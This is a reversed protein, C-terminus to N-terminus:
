QKYQLGQRSGSSVQGGPDSHRKAGLRGRARFGPEALLPTTGQFRSVLTESVQSNGLPPPVAVTARPASIPWILPPVPKFGAGSLGNKHSRVAIQSFLKVLLLRELRFSGCFAAEIGDTEHFLAKISGM